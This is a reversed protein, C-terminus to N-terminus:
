ITQKYKHRYNSLKYLLDTGKKKGFYKLSKEMTIPVHKWSRLGSTMHAPWGRQAFKRRMRRVRKGTGNRV